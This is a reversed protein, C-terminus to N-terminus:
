NKDLFPLYWPRTDLRKARSELDLEEPYPETQDLGLRKWVDPPLQVARGPSLWNFLTLVGKLLPTDDGLRDILRAWDVLPSAANLLNLIDPWDCREPQLVYIKAWILEEIPLVPLTEGKVPVLIGKDLWGPDVEANGNAMAWIVDVIVDENHARYIWSRDYSQKEFYDRLGLDKVSAIMREKDSPLVYLDLDKTNRWRATYAALAFAGGLAFPINQERAAQIVPYYVQWQQIPIQQTWQHTKKPNIDPSM